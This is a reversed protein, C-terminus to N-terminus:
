AVSRRVGYDRSAASQTKLLRFIHPPAPEALNEFGGALLPIFELTARPIQQYPQTGGIHFGATATM